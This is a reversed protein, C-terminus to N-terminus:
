SRSANLRSSFISRFTGFVFAAHVILSGHLSEVLKPSSECADGLPDAKVGQAVGERGMKELVPDVHADDLRQEPV